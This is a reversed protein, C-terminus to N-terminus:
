EQAKGGDPRRFSIRLEIEQGAVDLDEWHLRLQYGWGLATRQKSRFPVAREADFTWEHVKTTAENGEEDVGIRYLDVVITGEGFLGRGTAGDILFM